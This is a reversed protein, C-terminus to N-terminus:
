SSAASASGSERARVARLARLAEIAVDNNKDHSLRDLPELSTQDGTFVLVTCLRKRVTANGISAYPYLQPLFKPDRCLEILYAQAVDGHLTSGLADVLSQLDNQRGMNALAYRMALRADVDKEAGMAKEIEPIAQTDRARGLGEAGLARYPKNTSGLAKLFVPDSVPDGIYALGQLAIQRNKKDRDKDYMAQLQPLAAHTRLIGVTEAADQKVDNNPSGLLDVLEPGASVDKIKALANLAGRALDADLSHAAKVLQPVAPQAVLVGLGRAAERAAQISSTDQMAAELATIVKPEVRVGPDIRATDDDSFISKAAHAGRKLFGTFGPSPTKGTYYGVLSEVAVTRVDPDSDRTATILAALAEPQRFSALAMVVERRVKDSPDRLAAELAPLAARDDSRGIERAAKARSDADSSKLQEALPDSAQAGRLVPTALAVALPLLLLLTKSLRPFSSWVPQRPIM